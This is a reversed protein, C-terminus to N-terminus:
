GVELENLLAEFDKPSDTAVVRCDLKVGLRILERFAEVDEKSVSIAKTVQIRGEKFQMGGINITQIQVGGKVLDLVEQPKTFLYFVTEKDYKPNHYVKIAKEISVINVKIGPPAAQKVLTRRIEDNAVEDSPIIIREAKAEKAWVTAVQGHILRDDIRALKIIM